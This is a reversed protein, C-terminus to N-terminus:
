EDFRVVQLTPYGDLKMFGFEYLIHRLFGRPKSVKLKHFLYFAVIFIPLLAFKDMLMWIVYMVILVAIDELDFWLIQVPLHLYRPVKVRM